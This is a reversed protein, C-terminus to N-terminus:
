ESNDPRSFTVQSGTAEAINNIQKRIEEPLSDYYNHQQMIQLFNNVEQKTGELQKNKVGLVVAIIIGVIGIAYAIFDRRTIRQSQTIEDVRNEMAKYWRKHREDSKFRSLGMLIEKKSYKRILKENGERLYKLFDAAVKRAEEDNM